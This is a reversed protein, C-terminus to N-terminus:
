AVSVPSSHTQITETVNEPFANPRMSVSSVIEQLIKKNADMTEQGGCWAVFSNWTMEYIGKWRLRVLQPPLPPGENGSTEGSPTKDIQSGFEDRPFPLRLTMAVEGLGVVECYAMTRPIRWRDSPREQFEIVFDFDRVPPPPAQQVPAPPPPAAQAPSEPILSQVIRSVENLQAATATGSHALHLLQKLQPDKEAAQFVINSLEQTAYPHAGPAAPLQGSPSSQPASHSSQGVQASPQSYSTGAQSYSPATATINVSPLYKVEYLSTGPFTHPGISM